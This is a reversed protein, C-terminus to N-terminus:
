LRALWRSMFLHIINKSAKWQLINAVLQTSWLTYYRPKRLAIAIVIYSTIEQGREAGSGVFLSTTAIVIIMMMMMM